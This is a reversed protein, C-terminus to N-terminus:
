GDCWQCQDDDMELISVMLLVWRKRGGGDGCDDVTRDDEHEEAVRWEKQAKDSIPRCILGYSKTSKMWGLEFGMMM